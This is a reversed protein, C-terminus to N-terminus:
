LPVLYKKHLIHRCALVCSARVSVVLTHFDRYLDYGLSQLYSQVLSSSYCFPNNCGQVVQPLYQTPLVVPDPLLSLRGYSGEIIAEALRDTTGTMTTLAAVGDPTCTYSCM